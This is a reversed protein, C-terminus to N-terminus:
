FSDDDEFYVRELTLGQPPAPKSRNDDRSFEGNNEILQRFFDEQMRGQCVDLATGVMNRVQKYLAGKLLFDIRLNGHGSEQVVKVSYVTRSTDFQGGLQKELKEVDSAFARFNHHGEYYSLLRAFTAEDFWRHVRDPHWRHFRELPDMTPSVNLRYSYLKHTSDYMVSWDMERVKGKITKTIPPPVRQLNWLAVDKPLMREVSAQVQQMDDASLDHQCEFHMAQGRAHVGADACCCICLTLYLTYVHSETSLPVRLM